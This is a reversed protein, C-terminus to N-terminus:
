HLYFLEMMGPYIFGFELCTQTIVAGNEILLKALPVNGQKAAELLPADNRYRLDAGRTILYLIISMRSCACAVHLALGLDSHYSREFFLHLTPDDLDKMVYFLVNTFTNIDSSTLLSTDAGALLLVKILDPRKRDIAKWIPSYGYYRDNIDASHQILAPLLGSDFNGAIFVAYYVAYGPPFCTEQPSLKALHSINTYTQFNLFAIVYLHMSSLRALRM